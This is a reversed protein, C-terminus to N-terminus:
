LIRRAGVLVTEYGMEFSGGLSDIAEAIAALLRERREPALARHDSHTSLQALWGDTDYRQSWAFREVEAAEFRRAAAIGEITTEIRADRHGFLVSYNEVRPGLWAYIPVLLDRLRPPPEGFNWFVALRGGEELAQAAVRAGTRPDIWHWAQASIALDFRRGRPDWDEFRAVEVDLGGARAVEAMRADVEVGLVACGSVALLRAAIGTGCGIDLVRQPRSALLAEVLASPYSPRVRDYQAAVAGFSEARSRDEHLRRTDNV